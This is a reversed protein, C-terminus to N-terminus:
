LTKQWECDAGYELFGVSKYLTQSAINKGGTGVYIYKTGREKLVNMGYLLTSKMIGKRRHEEVCAVPELIAIKSVPDDWITCYAIIEENYMQVVFDMADGYSPSNMMREYRESTTGIGGTALGFLEVRRSVDKKQTLRLSFGRPLSPYPQIKSLDCIGCFRFYETKTYGREELISSLLDDEANAETTITTGKMYCNHEIYDLIDQKFHEFNSLVSISFEDEQFTIFGFEIKDDTVLLTTKYLIDPIEEFAYREFDLNGVHLQPYLHGTQVCNHQVIRRMINYDSEKDFKRYSLM